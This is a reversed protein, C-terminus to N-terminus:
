TFRRWSGSGSDWCWGLDELEKADNGGLAAPDPGDAYLVDHQAECNWTVGDAKYGQLIQLGRIVKAQDAM